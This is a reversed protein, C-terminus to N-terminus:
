KNRVFLTGVSQPMDHSPSRSAYHAHTAAAGAAHFQSRKGTVFSGPASVQQNALNGTAGGAEGRYGALGRGDSGMGIQDM